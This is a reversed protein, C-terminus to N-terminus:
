AGQAPLSAADGAATVGAELDIVVIEPEVGFRLPLGSCGLGGSVVLHRGDEVVHGYAFRQGYDSPVIPAYGAFRVQGGHTHGSITLAVREPMQFFIDPEHAMMVVPADDTVKALTAGIDARTVFRRVHPSGVIRRSEEPTAFFAIQDGLGAIWFAQGDKEFRVADNEYVPIDVAELAVHAAVKGRRTRQISPDEWWDHNGLVAHVGFPAKLQGLVKAWASHPVERSIELMKRGAVYDGLLLVADARLANTAEVIRELKPLGMWPECVHLDAIVALRLKLRQPWSAPEVRYRTVALGFPQAFRLVRLASDRLRSRLRGRFSRAAHCSSLWEFLCRSSLPVFAPLDRGDM